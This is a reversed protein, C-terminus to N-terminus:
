DVQEWKIASRITHDRHNICVANDHLEVPKNTQWSVPLIVTASNTAKVTASDYAKVTASNTARVTASDYAKVTASGYAKVTASNTARVTASGYAKVTASGYAEVTASGYAEVTASNTAKVTASNTAKVTASNTARVTASDTAIWVGNRVEHKGERLVHKACWDAIAERIRPYDVEPMFWDPLIDQDVKIQWGMPDSGKDGDAPYCEVRVFTESAHRMDDPINLEELMDSHSDYDPVFVRDKLCIASKFQCM